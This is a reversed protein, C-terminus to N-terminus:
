PTSRAEITQRSLIKGRETVAVFAMIFAPLLGLLLCIGGTIRGRVLSVIALVFAAFLLPLSLLFFFTPSVLPAFAAV